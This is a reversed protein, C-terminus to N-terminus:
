IISAKLNERKQAGAVFIMDSVNGQKTSFLDHFVQRAKCHMLTTTHLVPKKMFSFKNEFLTLQFGVFIDKWYVKSM